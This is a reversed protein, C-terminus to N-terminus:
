WKDLTADPGFRIHLNAHGAFTDGWLSRVLGYEAAAALVAVLLGGAILRAFKEGFDPLPDDGAARGPLLVALLTCLCANLHIVGETILRQEPFPVSRALNGIVIWWLFTVFLLQSKGLNSAPLIALTRGRYWSWLPWAVAIALAAYGLHFWFDASHGWLEPKLLTNTQGAERPLWTTHINKVINVYSIVVVTFFIVLPDAWRRVDPTEYQRPARTSLYGLALGVGIGSIFGFTQELVSHWNSHTAGGFIRNQVDPHVLVLKILTAGSFGLGGFMGTVLAAWAVGRQRTQWLFAFMALTMGLAGAWNDGRPPTMRLGLGVVLVTFGLWWGACM